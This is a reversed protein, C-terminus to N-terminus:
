GCFFRFISFFFFYDTEDHRPRVCARVEPFTVMFRLAQALESEAGYLAWGGGLYALHFTLIWFNIALMM